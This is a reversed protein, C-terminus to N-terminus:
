WHRLDVPWEVPENGSGVLWMRQHKAVTPDVHAPALRIRDGVSWRAPENAKLTVHEDSCFWVDGHPWHPDGHDMGLSKLGSDAVLWGGQQNVSIITAEVWLAQEFPLDLKQYQSDM